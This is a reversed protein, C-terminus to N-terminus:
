QKMEQRLAPVGKDSVHKHPQHMVEDISRDSTGKKRSSSGQCMTESLSEYKPERGKLPPRTYIGM